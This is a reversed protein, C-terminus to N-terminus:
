SFSLNWLAEFLEFRKIIDFYLSYSNVSTFCFHWKFISDYYKVVVFFQSLHIGMCSPTNNLFVFKLIDYYQKDETKKGGQTWLYSTTLNRLKLLFNKFKHKRKFLFSYWSNTRWEPLSWTCKAFRHFLSGTAMLLDLLLKTKKQFLNQLSSCVINMSFIHM